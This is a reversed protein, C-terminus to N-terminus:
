DLWILEGDPILVLPDLTEVQEAPAVTPNSPYSTGDFRLMRRGTLEGGGAITVWLDAWGNSQSDLQGLPLQTVSTETVKTFADGERKLVVLSCGGTGCLMPGGVFALVEPKGDGDLDSEAARYGVRGYEGYEAKLYSELVADRPVTGDPTGDDAAPATSESAPTMPDDDPGGCGTVILVALAGGLLRGQM